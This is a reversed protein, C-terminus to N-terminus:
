RKRVRSGIENGISRFVELDTLPRWRPVGRHSLGRTPRRVQFPQWNVGQEQCSQETDGKNGRLDANTARVGAMSALNRLASALGPGVSARKDVAGCHEFVLAYSNPAVLGTSSSGGGDERHKGKGGDVSGSSAKSQAELPLHLKHTGGECVVTGLLKVVHPGDDLTRLVAVERKVKWYPGPKLM